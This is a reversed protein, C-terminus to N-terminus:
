SNVGELDKIEKSISQEASAFAKQLEDLSNPLINGEVQLRINFLRYFLNINDLGPIGSGSGLEGRQAELEEVENEIAIIEQLLGWKRSFAQILALDARCVKLRTDRAKAEAIQSTLQQRREELGSFLLDIEQIRQEMRLSEGAIHERKTASIDVALADRCQLIKEQLSNKERTLSDIESVVQQLDIAM